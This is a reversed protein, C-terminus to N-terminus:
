PQDHLLRADVSRRGKRGALQLASIGPHVQFHPRTAEPKQLWLELALGAM